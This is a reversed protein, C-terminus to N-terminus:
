RQKPSDQGTPARAAPPPESAGPPAFAIHKATSVKDSRFATADVPANLKWDSYETQYHAHAPENPYTVRIMRPLHDAAGIWLEAQVEDGAVAVVDTTAGGVVVSQGVYFASTMKKDFVACPDSAMVDAFPFYIAAIDWVADLMQDITPPADAVAVLDTSPVYAAVTKGDYYFEDPIGDGVKIVRLKDPRQLTVRSLVTYYLPQGNRAAREYTDVATFTMTQAASLMNCAARLIATVKPDIKAPASQQAASDQAAARDFQVAAVTFLGALVFRGIARTLKRMSAGILNRRM